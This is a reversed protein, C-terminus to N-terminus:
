IFNLVVVKSFGQKGRSDTVTCQALQKTYGSGIAQNFRTYAANPTEIVTNPNIPYSVGLYTPILAWSFTVPPYTTINSSASSYTATATPSPTANTRRVGSTTTMQALTVNYTNLICYLSNHPAYVLGLDIVQIGNNQRLYVLPGPTTILTESFFPNDYLPQLFVKIDTAPGNKGDIFNLNNYSNYAFSTNFSTAADFVEAGLQSIEGEPTFFATGM